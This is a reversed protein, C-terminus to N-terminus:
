LGIGVLPNRDSWGDDEEIYALLAKSGDAWGGHRGIDVLDSGAARAATVFGRRMSHSRWRGDVGAAEAAAEVINAAATTTMRGAPDGIPQGYRTMPPAVNGHQDMRVFLPGDTRGAEALADILALTARVPCTAPHSGYMVKTTTWRKIKRRYVKVAIGRGDPDTEISGVNLSVLESARGAIAHGLLMLAADRKGKLDDRDLSAVFKRLVAPVAASVRNAQARQRDTDDDSQSLAARYGTLVKRAGKTEPPPVGAARHATRISAIVREVSAPAYPRGTRKRPTTVLHTAYETVTEPEAPLAVLGREGCWAAYRGFDDAYARRTSDPIGAAVAARAAPSLESRAGPVRPAVVTGTRIPVIEPM